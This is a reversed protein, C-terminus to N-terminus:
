HGLAHDRDSWHRRLRRRLARNSPPAIEEHRRADIERLAQREEISGPAPTGALAQQRFVRAVESAHMM